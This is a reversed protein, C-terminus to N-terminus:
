KACPMYQADPCHKHKWIKSTQSFNLRRAVGQFEGVGGGGGGCVCVSYANPEAKKDPYGPFIPFISPGRNERPTKKWRM